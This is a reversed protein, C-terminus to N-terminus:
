NREMLKYFLERTKQIDYMAGHAEEENIVIGCESAVTGLKFNPMEHRTKVLKLLALQMVDLPPYHVFSGFYKDGCKNFFARMFDYDFVANYGIFIFKDARNYKNVYLSLITSIERYVAVPDSFKAIEEKTMRNIELAKLDVVDKPFPRLFFHHEKHSRPTEIIMGIEVIGNKVSDLGCTELDVFLKKITNM